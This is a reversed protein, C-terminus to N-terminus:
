LLQRGPHQGHLDGDLLGQVREAEEVEVGALDNASSGARPTQCPPLGCCGRLLTRATVFAGLSVGASRGFVRPSSRADPWSNRVTLSSSRALRSSRSRVPPGRKGPM